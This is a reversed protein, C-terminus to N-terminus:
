FGNEFVQRLKNFVHEEFKKFLLIKKEGRFCSSNDDKKPQRTENCEALIGNSSQDISVRVYLRGDIGFNRGHYLIKM